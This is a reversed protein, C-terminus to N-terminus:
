REGGEEVSEDIVYRLTVGYQEAIKMQWDSIEFKVYNDKILEHKLLVKKFFPTPFSPNDISLEVNSIKM